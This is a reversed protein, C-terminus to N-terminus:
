PVRIGRWVRRRAGSGLKMIAKRFSPLDFHACRRLEPAGVVLSVNRSPVSRAIPAEADVDGPAIRSFRVAVNGLQVIAERGHDLHAPDSPGGELCRPKRVREQELPADGSRQLQEEECPDRELLEDALHRPMRHGHVLPDVLGAAPEREVLADEGVRIREEHETQVM